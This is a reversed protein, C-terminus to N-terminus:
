VLDNLDWLKEKPKFNPDVEHLEKFELEGTDDIGWFGFVGNVIDTTM